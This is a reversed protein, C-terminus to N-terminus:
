GGAAAPTTRGPHKPLQKHPSTPAPEVSSPPDPVNNRASMGDALDWPLPSSTYLPRFGGAQKLRVECRPGLQM